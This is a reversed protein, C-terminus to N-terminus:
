ERLPRLSYRDYFFGPAESRAMMALEHNIREWEQAAVGETVYGTSECKAGNWDHENVLYASVGLDHLGIPFMRASMHTSIPVAYERQPNRIPPAGRYDLFNWGTHEAIEGGVNVVKSDNRASPYVLGQYGRQRLVQGVATHFMNGGLEPSIMSALASIFDVTSEHRTGVFQARSNIPEVSVLETCFYERHAELRLDLCDPVNMETITFECAAPFDLFEQATEIEGVSEQPRMPIISLFPKGREILADIEARYARDPSRSAFDHMTTVFDDVGPHASTDFMSPFVQGSLHGSWYTMLEYCMSGGDDGTSDSCVSYYRSVPLDAGGAFRRRRGEQVDFIGTSTVVTKVELQRFADVQNEFEPFCKGFIKRFHQDGM